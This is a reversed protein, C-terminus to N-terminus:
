GLSLELPGLIGKRKARPEQAPSAVECGSGAKNTLQQQQQEPFLHPALWGRHGGDQRPDQYGTSLLHLLSLVSGPAQQLCPRSM